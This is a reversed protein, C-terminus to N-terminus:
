LDDAIAKKLTDKTSEFAKQLGEPTGDFQYEDDTQVIGQDRLVNYFKSYINDEEDDQQDDQTDVDETSETEPEEDVSQQSSDPEDHKTSEVDGDQTDQPNQFDEPSQDPQEPDDDGFPDFGTAPDPNNPQSFEDNSDEDIFYVLEELSPTNQDTNEM